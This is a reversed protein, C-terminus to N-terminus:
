NTGSVKGTELLTFVSAPFGKIAKVSLNGHVQTISSSSSNVSTGKRRRKAEHGVFYWRKNLGVGQLGYYRLFDHCDYYIVLDTDKTLPRVYKGNLRKLVDRLLLILDMERAPSMMHGHHHHHNNSTSSPILGGGRRPLFPPHHHHHHHHHRRDYSAAPVSISRSTTTPLLLVVVVILSLLVHPPLASPLYYRLM